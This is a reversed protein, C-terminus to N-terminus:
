TVSSAKTWARRAHRQIEPDSQSQEQSIAECVLPIVHNTPLAETQNGQIAGEHIKGAMFGQSVVETRRFAAVSTANRLSAHDHKLERQRAERVAPGDARFGDGLTCHSLGQEVVQELPVEEQHIATEPAVPKEAADHLPIREERDTLERLCVQLTHLRQSRLISENAVCRRVSHRM